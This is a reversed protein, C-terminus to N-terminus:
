STKNLISSLIRRLEDGEQWLPRIEDRLQPAAEQLLDLWYCSEKAEKRSIKIRMRFDKRSLAENAERYNAGVSGSSRVLQAVLEREILGKQAKKCLRIVAKAFELTREELDFGHKNGHGEERTSGRRSEQTEKEEGAKM